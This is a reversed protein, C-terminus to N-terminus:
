GRRRLLYLSSIPPLRHCVRRLAGRLNRTKTDGASAGTTTATARMHVNGRTTAVATATEAEVIATTTDTEASRNTTPVALDEIGEVGIVAAAMATVGVIAATVVAAAALGVEHDELVPLLVTPRVMVTRDKTASVVVVAAAAAAAAVAATVEEFAEVTAEELAAAVAEEAESHVALAEVGELAVLDLQRASLQVVQARLLARPTAEAELVEVSAAHAGALSQAAANLMSSCVATKSRSAM